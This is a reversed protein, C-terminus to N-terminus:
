DLDAQISFQTTQLPVDFRSMKADDREEGKGKARFSAM